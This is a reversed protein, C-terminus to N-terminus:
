ILRHLFIGRFVTVHMHGITFYRLARLEPVMPTVVIFHSSSTYSLESSGWPFNWTGIHFPTSFFGPFSWKPRVCACVSLSIVIPCGGYPPARIFISSQNIDIIMNQNTFYSKENSGHYRQSLPTANFTTQPLTHPKFVSKCAKHEICQSNMIFDDITQKWKCTNTM